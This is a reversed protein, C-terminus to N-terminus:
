KFEGLNITEKALEVLKLAKKLIYDHTNNARAIAEILQEIVIINQTNTIESLASKFDDMKQEHEDAAEISERSLVESGPRACEIPYKKCSYINIGEEHEIIVYSPIRDVEGKHASMRTVAGCNIFTVFDKTVIGYGIHDHGSVVIEATTKVNKIETFKDFPPKHDMLMGHVVHIKLGNNVSANESNLYSYDYDYDYGYGDIDVENCFPQFSVHVNENISISMRSNIINLNGILLSLLKCSTRNYSDLNYGYIDHNGVPMFMPVSLQKFVEYVRMLTSIGVVPMHFLDGTCLIADFKEDAAKKFCWSLKDMVTEFYNDLRSKPKDAKIHIDGLIMIKTTM